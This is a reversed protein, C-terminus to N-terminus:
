GLAAPAVFVSQVGTAPDIQVIGANRDAVLIAGLPTVLLGQPDSLLGASSITELPLGTNPDVRVVPRATDGEYANIIVLEGASLTAARACTAVGALAAAILMAAIATARLAPALPHQGPM